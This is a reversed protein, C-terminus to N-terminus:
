FSLLARHYTAHSAAGTVLLRETGKAMPKTEVVSPSGAASTVAKRIHHYTSWSIEKFSSRKGIKSLLINIQYLRFSLGLSTAHWSRTLIFTCSHITPVLLIWRKVETRFFVSNRSLDEFVISLKSTKKKGSYLGILLEFFVFEELIPSLLQWLVGRLKICLTSMFTLSSFLSSIPPQPIM